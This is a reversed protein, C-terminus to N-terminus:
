TANEIGTKNSNFAQLSQWFAFEKELMIDIFYQDRKVEIIIGKEGDFSFYYAFEIGAVHMQHQLQAKYKHPVKKQLALDHDKKGPCKVEVLADGEITMGDFSAAMWDIEDHVGVCPFMILDTEKEFELLAMSELEIGRLMWANPASEFCKTKEIYLQDITKFPSHGMLVPADSACIKNSRWQLWEKSRQKLNILKM